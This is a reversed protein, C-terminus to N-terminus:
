SDPDDKFLLPNTKRAKTMFLDREAEKLTPLVQWFNECYGQFSQVFRAVDHSHFRWILIAEAILDLSLRVLQQVESWSYSEGVEAATLKKRSAAKGALLHAFHEDRAVRLKKILTGHEIQEVKERFSCIREGLADLGLVSEPWDPHAVRRWHAIQSERESIASAIVPLSNGNREWVRCCWLRIERLSITIPLHLAHGSYSDVIKSDNDPRDVITNSWALLAIGLMKENDLQELAPNITKDFLEVM